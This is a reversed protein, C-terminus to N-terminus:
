IIHMDARISSWNGNRRAINYKEAWKIKNWRVIQALYIIMFRMLLALSSFFFRFNWKSWNGLCSKNWITWELWVFIARENIFHSHNFPMLKWQFRRTSHICLVFCFHKDLRFISIWLFLSFVLHVLTFFFVVIPCSMTLHIINAIVVFSSLFCWFYQLYVSINLLWVVAARHFLLLFFTYRPVQM